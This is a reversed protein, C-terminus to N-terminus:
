SASRAALREELIMPMFSLNELQLLRVFDQERRLSRIAEVVFLLCSQAVESKKILLRQRDAEERFVRVMSDATLPKKGSDRRGFSQGNLHKGHRRRQDIMRRVAILKRGRLKNESYAQTLAQQVDADECKAIEIAMRLPLVGAEVACVLREEGRALLISITRVYDLSLGIKDAIEQDSYGRTRMGGIDELLDLARHQRRACNEVLSMVLCDGEDAHIIIAPITTQGLKVFAELRGQGCVLDYEFADTDSMRSSVTIPRKLGVRAISSVIGDFVLQNRIRPNLIRIKDIPIDHVRSKKQAVSKRNTM